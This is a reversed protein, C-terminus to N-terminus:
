PTSCADMSALGAKLGAKGAGSHAHSAFIKLGVFFVVLLNKGILLYEASFEQQWFLTSCDEPVGPPSELPGKEDGLTDGRLASIISDGVM